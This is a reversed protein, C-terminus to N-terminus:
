AQEKAALLRVVFTQIEAEDLSAVVAQKIPHLPRGFKAWEILEGLLVEAKVAIEVVSKEQTNLKFSM